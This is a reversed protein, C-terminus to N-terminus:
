KRKDGYKIRIKEITDIIPKKFTPSQFAHDILPADPHPNVLITNHRNRERGWPDFLPVFDWTSAIHAVSRCLDDDTYVAPCVAIAHVRDKFDPDCKRLANREQITGQSHGVVVFIGGEPCNKFYHEMSQQLLVVPRTNLGIYNLICNQVDWLGCSPNYVASVSCGPALKRLYELSNQADELPNLMGNLFCLHVSAYVMDKPIFIHSKDSYLVSYEAHMQSAMEMAVYPSNEDYVTEPIGLTPFATNFAIQSIADLFLGDPDVFLTPRNKVYSYLNSGDVFWLPDPTIWRGIEPDYYRRGFYSLGTEPDVRKSSFRWPNLPADIQKKASNYIREEGYATYRYTEITQGYSDLLCVVNGRYDHLPITLNGNLELCVAAGIDGKYGIGMVRLQFLAGNEDLLGLEKDGQYLYKEETAILGNQITKRTRRHFPDYHYIAKLTPTSVETLRDLADYRYHTAINESIKETLNGNLDYSYRRNGQNVLQNLSNNSYPTEDKQVRNGLSDFQYTHTELGEESTLQHLNDYSYHYDSAGLPDTQSSTKLNGCFDYYIILQITQLFM